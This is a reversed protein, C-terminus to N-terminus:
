QLSCVATKVVSQPNSPIRNQPYTVIEAKVVKQHHEQEAKTLRIGLLEAAIKQFCLNVGEGSKAAMAYTLLGNEQAFKHHRESKIVRLHEQDIKNAVLAFIPRIQQTLAQPLPGGGTAGQTAISEGQPIPAINKVARLWDLHYYHLIPFWNQIGLRCYFHM